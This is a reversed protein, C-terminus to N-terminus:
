VIRQRVVGSATYFGYLPVGGAAAAADDAYAPLQVGSYVAKGLMKELFTFWVNWRATIRGGPEQIDSDPRVPNAVQAGGHM